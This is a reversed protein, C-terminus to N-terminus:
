GEKRTTGGPSITVIGPKMILQRVGKAGALVIAEPGIQDIRGEVCGGNVLHVKVVTKRERCEKVYERFM